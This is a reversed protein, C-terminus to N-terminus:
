KVILGGFMKMLQFAFFIVFAYQTYREKKTAVSYIALGVAFLLIVASVLLYGAYIQSSKYYWFSETGWVYGSFDRQVAVQYFQSLDLLIHFTAVLIFLWALYRTWGKNKRESAQLQM